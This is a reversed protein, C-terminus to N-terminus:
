PWRAPRSRARTARSSAPGASGRPGGGGGAGPRARGPVPARPTSPARSQSGLLSPLLTLSALMTIAVTLTASVAVGNLFSLRLVLMGLLAICVTSGAFLVARGSTDIATVIADEVSIGRELGQRSRTVIFLAYDIGVGLGILSGLIPAFQAIALGHSLLETTAAAVGLAFLAVFLPLLMALLSGFAFCWSSRPPM